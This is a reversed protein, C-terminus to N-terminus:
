WRRTLKLRERVEDPGLIRCGMGEAIAVAREVLAGNTALVDKELWINDELGVRINGGALVAMAAYPLQNRGISFASFTWSAPLNSTLAMLTQIDDPAGWPIGMCLQVM